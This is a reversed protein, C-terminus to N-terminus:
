TIEKSKFRESVKGSIAWAICAGWAVFSFGAPINVIFIKKLHKRNFFIALLTPIFWIIFTLPIVVLWVGLSATALQQYTQNLLEM